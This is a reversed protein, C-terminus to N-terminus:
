SHSGQQRYLDDLIPSSSTFDPYPQSIWASQGSSTLITMEKLSDIAVTMNILEKELIKKEYLFSNGQAHNM